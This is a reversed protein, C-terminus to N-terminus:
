MKALPGFKPSSNYVDEAMLLSRYCNIPIYAGCFANIIQEDTMAPGAEDVYVRSELRTKKKNPNHTYSGNKIERVCSYDTLYVKAYLLVGARFCLTDSTINNIIANKPIQPYMQTLSDIDGAMWNSESAPMDALSANQRHLVVCDGAIEYSCRIACITDVGLCQSYVCERGNVFYFSEKWTDQYVYTHGVIEGLENKGQMNIGSRDFEKSRTENTIEQIISKEVPHKKGSLDYNLDSINPRGYKLILRIHPGVGPIFEMLSDSIVVASAQNGLVIYSSHPVIDSFLAPCEINMKLGNRYLYSSVSYDNVMEYIVPMKLIYSNGVTDNKPLFSINNNKNVEYYMTDCRDAFDKPVNGFQRHFIVCQKGDIFRISWSEFRRNCVYECGKLSVSMCASVSSSVLCAIFVILLRIKRM